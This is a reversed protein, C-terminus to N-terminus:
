CGSVDNLACFIHLEVDNLNEKNKYKNWLDLIRM